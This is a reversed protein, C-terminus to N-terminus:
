CGYCQDPRNGSIVTRSLTVPFATYLGGGQPVIGPGASLKNATVVSEILTLEPAPGGLTFNNIGGGQASGSAGNVTGTNGIVLTRELTLRGFNGIGAGGIIAALGGSGLASSVCSM